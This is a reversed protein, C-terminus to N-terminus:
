LLHFDDADIANTFMRFSFSLLLLLIYCVDSRHFRYFSLTFQFLERAAVFLQCLTASQKDNPNTQFISMLLHSRAFNSIEVFHM